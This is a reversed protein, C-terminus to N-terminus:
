KYFHSGTAYQSEFGRSLASCTTHLISVIMGAAVTAAVCLTNKFGLRSGRAM